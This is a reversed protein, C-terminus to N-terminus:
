EIGSVEWQGANLLLVEQGGKWGENMRCDGDHDETRMFTAMDLM